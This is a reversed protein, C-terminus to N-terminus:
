ILLCLTKAIWWAARLAKSAWSLKGREKIKFINGNADYAVGNKLTIGTASTNILKDIEADSIGLKYLENRDFNNPVFNSNSIDSINVNKEAAFAASTPALATFGISLALVASSVKFITKKNKM